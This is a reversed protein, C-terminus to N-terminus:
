SIADRATEAGTWRQVQLLSHRIMIEAEHLHLFSKAGSEMGRQTSEINALDELMADAFLAKFHELQIRDRMTQPRPQYFRAEWVTTNRSTPWFEHTWFRNASIQLHWNPFFWNVDSAWNQHNGPNVFPHVSLLEGEGGAGTGTVSQDVPYAWRQVHANAGPAYGQNLWTGISRHAGHLHASVPRSGPNEKGSYIPALTKPHLSPIHYPESFNDAVAKWNAGIEGRFVVPDSAHPYAIGFLADGMPGLFEKLTIEPSPQLNIFIWGDWIECAVPTLGCKKKDFDFFGSEDPVGILEGDNKYTWSHYRCTFRSASGEPALVVQNGRHSCVNHFARVAGEKGRTVIISANVVAIEKRFFDGAAPIREVRGVMLWARRFIRDQELQYQLPSTYLSAPVQGTPLGTAETHTSAIRNAINM